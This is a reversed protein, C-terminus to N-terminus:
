GRRVVRVALGLALGVAAGALLALSSPEPIPSFALARPHELDTFVDVVNLGNADVRQIKNAGLDVWYVQEADADLAIGRPERLGDVVDEMDTGDLDARRVLGGRGLLVDTWYVKGAQTDLAVGWPESLGSVVTELESGDFNVRGIAGPFMSDILPNVYGFYVKKAQPDIAVDHVNAVTPVDALVTQVATAADLPGRLIANKETDSWYVMGSAADIEVGEPSPLDVAV